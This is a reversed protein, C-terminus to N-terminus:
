KVTETSAHYRHRYRQSLWHGITSGATLMTIYRFTNIGSVMWSTPVWSTAFKVVMASAGYWFKSHNGNLIKTVVGEAYQHADMRPAGDNGSARNIFDPQISTYLSTEPLSWSEYRTHSNSKVAGTIISITKVDFPAMELRLVDALIEV